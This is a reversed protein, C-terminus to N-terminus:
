EARANHGPAAVLVDLHASGLLDLGKDLVDGADGLTAGANAEDDTLVARPLREEEVQHPGNRQVLAQHRHM